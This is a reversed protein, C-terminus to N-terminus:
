FPSVGIGEIRSLKARGVTFVYVFRRATTPIASAFTAVPVLQGEQTNLAKLSVTKSAAKAAIPPAGDGTVVVRVKGCRRCKTAVLAVRKVVADASLNLGLYGKRQIM